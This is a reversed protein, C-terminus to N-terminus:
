ALASADIWKDGPTIVTNHPHKNFQVNISQGKFQMWDFAADTPKAPDVKAPAAQAAPATTAAPACEFDSALESPSSM